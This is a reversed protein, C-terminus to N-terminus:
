HLLPPYCFVIFVFVPPYDTLNKFLSFSTVFVIFNVTLLSKRLHDYYDVVFIVFLVVIFTSMPLLLLLMMLVKM